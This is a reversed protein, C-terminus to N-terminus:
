SSKTVQRNNYHVRQSGQRHYAAGDAYAGSPQHEKYVIAVQQSKDYNSEDSVTVPQLRYLKQHPRVGSQSAAVPQRQLHLIHHPPQQQQQYNFDDRPPQRTM